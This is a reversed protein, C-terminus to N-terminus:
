ERSPLPESPRIAACAPCYDKGQEWLHREWRHPCNAPDGKEFPRLVRLREKKGARAPKAM